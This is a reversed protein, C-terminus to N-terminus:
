YRLNNSTAKIRPIPTQDMKGHVLFHRNLYPELCAIISVHGKTAGFGLGSAINRATEFAFFADNVLLEDIPATLEVDTDFYVGGQENIIDFRAYDSVFAWKKCNYAELMFASKSIDYNSENWEIIEYDPCYKKWSAICRQVLEPKPNRGFWCYHIIKPIM